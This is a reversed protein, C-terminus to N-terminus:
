CRLSALDEPLDIDIGAEPATIQARHPESLILSKAGSRGELAALRTFYAPSFWAPPGPHGQYHATVIPRGTSKGALSRLLQPTVFPQDCLMILVGDVASADLGRMGTSISSGMGNQWAPNFAFTLDLGALCERCPLDVAGLVVVVPGLEAALATEAAHRLLPKGHWDVLQKPQGLRSSEGAALLIIGTM